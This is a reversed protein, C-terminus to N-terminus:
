READFTFMHHGRTAFHWVGPELLTLAAVNSQSCDLVDLQM